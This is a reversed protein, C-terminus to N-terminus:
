ARRYVFLRVHVETSVRPLSLLREVGARPSRYAYPTMQWLAAIAAQGEVTVTYRVEESSLLEFGRLTPDAVTNKYPTDYVVTKLGFLHEREPVALIFVGGERLIRHTEEVALPAFLNVAVDVSGTRVPMRYAGAVFLRISRDRAAALRVAEKSIDFAYADCPTGAERLAGVMRETYFCEGAGMDLLVGGEKMYTCVLASVRAALTDYYGRELFARRALLMERNDGHTGGRSSTLLNVYGRAARDFTHGAACALQGSM